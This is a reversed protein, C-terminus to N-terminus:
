KIQKESIPIEQLPVQLRKPQAEDVMNEQM